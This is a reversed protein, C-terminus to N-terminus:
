DRAIKKRTRQLRVTCITSKNDRMQQGSLNALCAFKCQSNRYRTRDARKYRMQFSSFPVYLVLKYKWHTYIKLYITKKKLYLKEEKAHYIVLYTCAVRVAQVFGIGFLSFTKLELNLRKFSLLLFMKNLLLFFAMLKSDFQFHIVGFPIFKFHSKMYYKCIIFIYDLIVRESQIFVYFRSLCWNLQSSYEFCIHYRLFIL